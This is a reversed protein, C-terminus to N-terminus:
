RLPLDGHTLVPALAGMWCDYPAPCAFSSIRLSGRAHARLDRNGAQLLHWRDAVQVANPAGDTIVRIYETSRDRAVVEVGPHVKLWSALADATRDPLMDVPRHQELDILITGWWRGKRWAWDDVGLVRPPGEKPLPYQHLMRLLADSSTLM